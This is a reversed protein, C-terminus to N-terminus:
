PWGRSAWVSVVAGAGPLSRLARRARVAESSGGPRGSKQAPRRGVPCRHYGRERQQLVSGGGGGAVRSPPVSPGADANAGTPSSRPPAKPAERSLRPSPVAHLHSPPAAPRVFALQAATVRFYGPPTNGAPPIALIRPEGVALHPSRSVAVDRGSCYPAPSSPARSGTGQARRPPQSPEWRFAGGGGGGGGNGNGGGDGDSDDSSSEAPYSGRRRCQRHRGQTPQPRM